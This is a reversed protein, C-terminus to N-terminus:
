GDEGEQLEGPEPLRAAVAQEIYDKFEAPKNYLDWVRTMPEWEVRAGSEDFRAIIVTRPMELDIEYRSTFHRNGPKDVNVSRVDVLGAEVEEAFREAVTEHTLREITNCTECRYNGHFYYVMVRADVRQEGEAGGRVEQAILVAVAVAVFLLLAATVLKKLTGALGSVQTRQAGQESM